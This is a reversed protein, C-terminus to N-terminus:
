DHTREENGSKTVTWHEGDPSESVEFHIKNKGNFLNTTRYYTTKGNDVSKSNYTWHDGEIEVESRGTAWGEPLVSQLFYHGPKESPIFIILAEIKNNVTQQCTFYKGVLDCINDIKDPATGPKAGTNDLRWHGNYLWLPAYPSNKDSAGANFWACALVTVLLFGKITTM